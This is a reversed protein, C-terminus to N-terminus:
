IVAQDGLMAQGQLIVVHVDRKVIEGNLKWETAIVRANDEETVIDEVVLKERPILGKITHVMSM